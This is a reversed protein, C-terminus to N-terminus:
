KTEGRHVVLRFGTEGGSHTEPGGTGGFIQFLRQDTQGWSGGALLRMGRAEDFWWDIWEYASGATDFLGTPSEDVPYSLVPEPSASARAFCCKVWKTSFRMGFVYPRGSSFGAAEIWEDRTPLAYTEGTRGSAAARATRWAAYERADRWSVGLVPWEASM